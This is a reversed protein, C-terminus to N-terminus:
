RWDRARNTATAPRPWWCRVQDLDLDIGSHTRRDPDGPVADLAAVQVSFPGREARLRVALGAFPFISPGNLGTQAFDAGIGHSPNVFLKASEIADFESNL